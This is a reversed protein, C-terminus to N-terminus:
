PQFSPIGPNGSQFLFRCEAFSAPILSELFHGLQFGLNGSKLSVQRRTRSGGCGFRGFRPLSGSVALMLGKCETASGPSSQFATPLRRTYWHSTLAQVRNCFRTLISVTALSLRGCRM